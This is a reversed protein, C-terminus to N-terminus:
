GGGPPCPGPCPSLGGGPCPPPPGGGDPPCSPPPCPPGGFDPPFPPFCDPPCAGAGFLPPPLFPPFCDPITHESLISFSFINLETIYLIM